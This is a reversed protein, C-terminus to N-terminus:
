HKHSNRRLRSAGGGSARGGGIGAGGIGGGGIGGGGICYNLRGCIIKTPNELIHNVFIM